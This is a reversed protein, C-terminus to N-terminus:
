PPSLLLGSMAEDAADRLDYPTAKLREGLEPAFGPAFYFAGCNADAAVDVAQGPDAKVCGGDGTPYLSALVGSFSHTSATAGPQDDPSQGIRGGFFGVAASLVAVPVLTRWSTALKTQANSTM